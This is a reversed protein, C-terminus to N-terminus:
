ASVPRFCQSHHVLWLLIGANLSSHALILRWLSCMRFVIRGPVPLAITSALFLFILSIMRLAYPKRFIPFMISM